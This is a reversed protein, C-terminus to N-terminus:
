RKIDNNYTHCAGALQKIGIGKLKIIIAHILILIVMHGCCNITYCYWGLVGHLGWKYM